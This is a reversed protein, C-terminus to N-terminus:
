SAETPVTGDDISVIHLADIVHPVDREDIVSIVGRGVVIFDGHPVMFRRGDSLCIDFPRFSPGLRERIPDLSIMVVSRRAM